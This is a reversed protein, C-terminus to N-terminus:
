VRGSIALTVVAVPVVCGRRALLSRLRKLARSVRKRASDESISLAAGIEKFSREEFFRLAVADRDSERLAVLAEDLLPAIQKWAADTYSMYLHDMAQQETVHRHQDRRRANAATYRTTLLLWGALVTGPQITRAKRALIIFVTQSIEAATQPDAVQRLAASHVLNIHRNVLETFAAETGPEVYARLLEFDGM